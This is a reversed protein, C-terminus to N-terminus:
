PAREARLRFRLAELSSAECKSLLRRVHTKITNESVGLETALHPRAVGRLTLFLIDRQRESLGARSTISAALLFDGHRDGLARGLFLAVDSTVTDEATSTPLVTIQERFAREVEGWADREVFALIPLLLMRARALTVLTWPLPQSTLILADPSRGAAISFADRAGAEDLRRLTTKSSRECAAIVGAPAHPGVVLM